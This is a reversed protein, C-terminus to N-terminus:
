PEYYRQETQESYAKVTMPPLIQVNDLNIYPLLGDYIEPNLDRFNYPEKRLADLFMFSTYATHLSDASHPNPSLMFDHTVRQWPTGDRYKEIIQDKLPQPLVRPDNWGTNVFHNNGSNLGFGIENFEAEIEKLWWVNFMSVAPDLGAHFFRNGTRLEIFKVLNERVEDWKALKRQYEFRPGIDDISISCEVSKFKRWVAIEFPKPYYTGNTNYRIKIKKPDVRPDSLLKDLMQFHEPVMLPEGGMFHILRIEEMNDINTWFDIDDIWECSQTYKFAKSEKFPKNIEDWKEERKNSEYMLYKDVEYYDKTWQSSNHVGCIRCKLNCRNGPKIELWELRRRRGEPQNLMAAITTDVTEIRSSFKVRNIFKNNDGWCKNCLKHQANKDFSDIFAQRKPDQLAEGIAKGQIKLGPIPYGMCCPRIAGNSEVAMHMYPLACYNNGPQLLWAEAIEKKAKYVADELDRKTAILDSDFKSKPKEKM